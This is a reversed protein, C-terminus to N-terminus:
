REFGESCFRGRRPLIADVELAAHDIAGSADCSAFRISTLLSLRDTPASSLTSQEKYKFM